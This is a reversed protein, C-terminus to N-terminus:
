FKANRAELHRFVLSSPYSLTFFIVGVLTLTEFYKFSSSALLNATSLLEYVTITSLLPVEKFLQILFNGLAPVMPRIAQPLIIRGWVAPVPISLAIAAEWQGSPVARIGARYVESIYTGYHLGLVLVGTPEAPLKIGTQPLVYYAFFLQVLVPTLRVSESIAWVLTRVPKNGILRLIALVLGIALAVVYGLLAIRITILTAELLTPLIQLAYQFDFTM